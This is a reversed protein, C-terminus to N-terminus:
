RREAALSELRPALPSLDYGADAARRIIEATPRRGAESLAWLITCRTGSRCYALVPGPLDSVIEGFRAGDAASVAGSAVPQWAIELGAAKAAAEIEGYAVQDGSENDPRNCVIAKFGEAAAEAIDDATIQPSVALDDTLRRPQMTRDKEIRANLRDTEVRM